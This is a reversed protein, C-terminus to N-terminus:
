GSNASASRTVRHATLKVHVNKNRAKLQHLCEIERPLVGHYFRHGAHAAAAVVLRQLLPGSQWDRVM